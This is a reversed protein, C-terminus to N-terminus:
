KAQGIKEKVVETYEQCFTTGRGDLGQNCGSCGEQEDSKEEKNISTWIM